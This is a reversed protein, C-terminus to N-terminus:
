QREPEHGPTELGPCRGPEVQGGDVQTLGLHLMTVLVRCWEGEPVFPDGVPLDRHVQGVGVRAGMIDKAGPEIRRREEGSPDLTHSRPVTRGDLVLDVAEGVALAM